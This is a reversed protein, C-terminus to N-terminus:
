PLKRAQNIILPSRDLKIEVFADRVIDIISAVQLDDEHVERLRIQLTRIGRMEGYPLDM